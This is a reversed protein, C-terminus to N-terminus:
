ANALETRTSPFFLSYLTQSFINSYVCNQSINKPKIRRQSQQKQKSARQVLHASNNNSPSQSPLARPIYFQIFFLLLALLFIAAFISFPFFNYAICQTSTRRCFCGVDSCWVVFYM